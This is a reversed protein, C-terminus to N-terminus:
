WMMQPALREWPSDEQADRDIRIFIQPEFGPQPHLANRMNLHPLPVSGSRIMTTPDRTRADWARQSESYLALARTRHSLDGTQAALRESAVGANNRAMMLREALELYEPRDNPLLIPLRSRQGELITLLRNYFGQAAFYDGRKLASNGLAFLVRRNLPLESAAVFFYELANGWNELQYYAAGMRFLMEPPAWGLQEARRYHNLAAEMDGVKVFYELDGLGAFLRGYNTSPSLIRRRIGDEYLAIGRILQEEAVMFERDLILVDALRQHADIRYRLRRLSEDRANDFAPIAHELAIREQHHQGLSHFFRSLHYHPEPLSPDMQVAELLIDPVGRIQGVFENPVGRVEEFQKDLLYGGLEALTTAQMTRRPNADFWNRLYLVERLNDTRIFFRLMREVIPPTWGHIEMLRAFSIRADEFRSPDIEGWALANDGAALLGDFDNPSFDLIQRRILNDAREYNRLYNTQLHAFDLVGRRDRPFYRLLKEYKQEALAFQRHDRFAEAYRYFWNKNRHRAFAEAFLENARRFEGAHLREYGSRYISEAMLPTYIFRFALYFVSATLIGIIAVMRLVPLFNKVFVYSFTGQEAALAEGSSKEFGKPITITRDLIESALTATVKAPAGQVLNSILKFMKAPSVDHEVIIEQCAIRLNLPYDSLTNQLDKFEDETIKIEDLTKPVFDEADGSKSKGWFGTKAPAAPVTPTDALMSSKVKREFAEDLDPISFEGLDIGESDSDAPFDGIGEAFAGGELDIDEPPGDAFAPVDSLDFGSVDGAAAGDAVLPDNSLDLDGLSDMDFEGDASEGPGDTMFPEDTLGFDSLDFGDGSTEAPGEAVPLDGSLDLADLNDLDFEGGGTEGPGDAAFPEDTLGFDSLDLGDGGTEGPGDATLPEDTLGFDGLSDLDFEGGGSEGSGDAMSPEDTLGFDGLSDLDFDDGGVEGFGDATLPEDSMGLDGLSDLDFEGGGSEGFGDATLPEDSMGLDGLSDLDFEGGDAEDFGDAMLSGDSFDLDGLDDLSLDGGVSEGPEGAAFPDGSLGLDDFVSLDFEADKPEGAEDAALPDDSLGLDDFVSLDFEADEPKGAEDAALPDDSLGLDDFVSLDFEADEPKGAEDTALPDGLLGLDDFSSLDFEDDVQESPEDTVLPDESLDLGDFASMDFEGDAPESPEDTVLPDESLDLGDFASLDFEGDVPSEEGNGAGTPLDPFLIDEPNLNEAGEEAVGDMALDSPWSADDDFFAEGDPFDPPIADLEESLNSLLEEPTYFGEQASDTKKGISSADDDLSVEDVSPPSPLDDFTTGLLSGFDFDGSQDAPAPEAGPIKGGNGNAPSGSGPADGNATGGNLTKASETGADEARAPKPENEPLELDDFPLNRAVLDAKQGGIDHFSSKFKRLDNLSPM